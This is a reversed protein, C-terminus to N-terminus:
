FHVSATLGYMAPPRRVASIIIDTTTTGGLFPRTDTVNNGWLAVEYKGDDLSLSARLNLQGDAPKHYAALAGQADAVNALPVGTSADVAQGGSLYYNWLYDPYGSDWDYVAHFTFAGFDFEHTYTGGLSFQFRPVTEFKEHSQDFGNLPNTYSAYSPNTNSANFNLTLNQDNEEWALVDLEVEEGAIDEEQANAEFTTEGGGGTQLITFTRQVNRIISYYADVNLKARHDWFESKLGVEYETNQEPKFILPEAITSATARLNAGGDRYGRATKVYGMIDPTFKYDLDLLYSVNADKAVPGPGYCAAIQAPNVCTFGGTGGWISGSDWNGNAITVTKRTESWRLGETITLKNTLDYSSQGYIGLSTNGIHGYYQVVSPTLGPFFQFLSTDLGSEDFYFLGAAFSLKDDLAKGTLQGEVSWQYLDQDANYYGLQVIDGGYNNFNVMDVRRYGAIVKAEGVPTQDTITAEYTQTKEKQSDPILSDITDSHAYKQIDSQLHTYGAQACATTNAFCTAPGLLVAGADLNTYPSDAPTMIDALNWGPMDFNAFYYTAALNIALDNNVQWLLKLRADMNNQNGDTKSPNDILHQYGDQGTRSFAARIALEDKVIPINVVGTGNWYNYNGYSADVEGSYDELNPDNTEILVAGSSTNRGFLTGQPGRLVQIDKVDLMDTNLGYERQWVMGDVYVSVSPDVSALINSQSQGRIEFDPADIASTTPRILLSPVSGSIDMLRTDNNQKLQESSLASVSIPVNQLNEKTKRATVVVEELGGGSPQSAAQAVQAPATDAQAIKTPQVSETNNNQAAAHGAGLVLALAL